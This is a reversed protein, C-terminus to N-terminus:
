EKKLLELVYEPCDCPIKEHDVLLMEVQAKCVSLTTSLNIIKQDFLLFPARTGTFSTKIEIEDFLQLEKLYKIQLTTVVMFLSDLGQSKLLGHTKAWEWRAQELYNLYVANNVHGLSDLEYGRVTMQTTINNQRKKLGPM